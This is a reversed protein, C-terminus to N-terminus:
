EPPESLDLRQLLASNSVVSISSFAMAAEAILPHLLGFMAAPIAVLNYGFAWLLNQRIKRFTARSLTVAGVVAGLDGRVLTIDASEIAVDTGTGLAIGVDAQVLAPADNIGDGVMAVCGFEDRLRRIEEAKRGPLVGALVREIGVQRAVARATRENDGTIMAVEFGMSKLRAVAAASGEKLTDSVGIVGVVTGGVAVMMATCAEDELRRLPEDATDCGIGEGDMLNRTGVLVAKGAVRGRVGKGPVAEFDAVEEWVAGAREAGATVARALPHESAAELSAAWRLVEAADAGGLPVVQSVPETLLVPFGHLAGSIAHFVVM